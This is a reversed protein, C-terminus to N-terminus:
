GDTDKGLPSRRRFRREFTLELDSEIGEFRGLLWRRYLKEERDPDDTDVPASLLECFAYELLPQMQERDGRHNRELLDTVFLGVISSTQENLASVASRIDKTVTSARSDILDNLVNQATVVALVRDLPLAVSASAPALVRRRSPDRTRPEEGNWYIGAASGPMWRLAADFKSFTSPRPDELAGAEAKVVTPATPGGNRNVDLVTLGLGRRREAVRKGFHGANATMCPMMVTSM